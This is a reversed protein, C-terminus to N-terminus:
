WRSQEGEKAHQASEVADSKWRKNHYGKQLQNRMEAM